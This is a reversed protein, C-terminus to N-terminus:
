QSSPLLIRKGISDANLSRVRLEFQLTLQFSASDFLNRFREKPTLRVSNPLKNLEVERAWLNGLKQNLLYNGLLGCKILTSASSLSCCIAIMFPEQLAALINYCCRLHKVQVIKFNSPQHIQLVIM